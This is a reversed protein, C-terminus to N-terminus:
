KGRVVISVLAVVVSTLIIGVCGYVIKKLMDVQDLLRQFKENTVYSSSITVQIDRHESTNSAKLESLESVVFDLKQAVLQIDIQNSRNPSEGSKHQPM